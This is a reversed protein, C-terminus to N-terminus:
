MIKRKVVIDYWIMDYWIMDYRIMDYWIMDYRIMDCWMDYIVCWIDYSMYDLWQIYCLTIYCIRNCLIMEYRSTDNWIIFSYTLIDSHIKLFMAKDTRPSQCNGFRGGKTERMGELTCYTCQKDVSDRCEPCLRVHGLHVTFDFTRFNSSAFHLFPSSDVKLCFFFRWFVDRGLQWGKCRGCEAARLTQVCPLLIKKIALM